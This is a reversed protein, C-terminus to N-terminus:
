RGLRRWRGTRAIDCPSCPKAACFRAREEMLDCSCVLRIRDRNKSIKGEKVYIGGGLGVRSVRARKREREDQIRSLQRRHIVSKVVFRLLISEHIALRHVAGEVVVPDELLYAIHWRELALERIEGSHTCKIGLEDSGRLVRSVNKDM